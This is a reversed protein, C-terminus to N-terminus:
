NRARYAMVRGLEARSTVGLKGYLSALHAEVTRPSIGMELAVDRTSLGDGALRAVRAETPTLALTSSRTLGLRAQEALARKAWVTAGLDAFIGHARRLADDADRRSRAHRLVEGRVLLVRAVDFRSWGLPTRSAVMSTAALAAQTDDRVLAIRARGRAIAADAWPKAVRQHRVALAELEATAEYLRGLAALAEIREPSPDLRMPEVYGVQRLHRWARGTAEEVAAADGRSAAVISTVQLWAATLAGGGARETRETGDNAAAQARELSGEFADVLAVARLAMESAGAGTELSAEVAGVAHRRAAPWDDSWLEVEALRTRLNAVNSYDGDILEFDLM